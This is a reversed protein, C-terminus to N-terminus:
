ASPVWGLWINLYYRDKLDEKTNAKLAKKFNDWWVKDIRDIMCCIKEHYYRDDCLESKKKQMRDIDHYMMTFYAIMYAMLDMSESFYDSRRAEKMEKASAERSKMIDQMEKKEM